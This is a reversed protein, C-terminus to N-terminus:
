STLLEKLEDEVRTWMMKRQDRMEVIEREYRSRDEIVKKVGGQISAATNAVHVTGQSFIERLVPWDSTILPKGVTIAESGGRQMTFDRTTLVLMASVGRIMGAYQENSLYGTLTVNDPKVQLVEPAANKLNGSVYFHVDPLLAAAEFVERVPEDPAYNCVFCVTFRDRDVPYEGEPMKYPIDSLIVARGGAAIVRDALSRNTVTTCVARRILFRHLPWMWTWKASDFAATHSDLIFRADFITCYFWALLGLFYPPNMCLVTGPRDSVLLRWTQLGRPLYKLLGLSKGSHIFHSDAGFAQAFSASRTTHRVWSIFLKKEKSATLRMISM